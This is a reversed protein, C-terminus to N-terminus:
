DSASEEERLAFIIGAVATFFGVFSISLPLTPVTAQIVILVIAVIWLWVPRPIEM